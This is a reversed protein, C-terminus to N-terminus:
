KKVVFIGIGQHWDSSKGTVLASSNDRTTRIDLNFIVELKEDTISAFTGKRVQEWNWDDIIMIFEKSLSPLVIKISDYHDKYNHAGDYFFVNFNELNNFKVTRFDKQILTLNNNKNLFESVNKKFEDKSILSKSFNQSWNDICTIAVKNKYLVSCATSGLWSGIELFKANSICNILNNLFIRFKRGSLGQMELIKTDLKTRCALSEEFANIIKKSYANDRNGSMSIILEDLTSINNIISLISKKKQLKRKIQISKM